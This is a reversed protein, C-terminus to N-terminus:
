FEIGGDRRYTVDVGQERLRSASKKVAEQQQQQYQRASELEAQASIDGAEAQIRLTELYENM